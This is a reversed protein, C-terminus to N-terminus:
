ALRRGCVLAHGGSGALGPSGSDPRWNQDLTLAINRADRRFGRKVRPKQKRSELGPRM